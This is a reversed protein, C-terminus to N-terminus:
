RYTFATGTLVPGFEQALGFRLTQIEGNRDFIGSLANGAADTFHKGIGLLTIVTKMGAELHAFYALTQFTARIGCNFVFM